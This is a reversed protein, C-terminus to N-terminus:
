FDDMPDYLNDINSTINNPKLIYKELCKESDFHYNEYQYDGKSKDYKVGCYECTAYMKNEFKSLCESSCFSLSKNIIINNYQKDVKNTIPKCCNWCIKIPFKKDELNCGISMESTKPKEKQNNHAQKEKIEKIKNLIKKQQNKNFAKNEEFYDSQIILIDNLNEFGDIILTDIFRVLNISRLFDYIEKFKLNYFKTEENSLNKIFEQDKAKDGDCDIEYKEKETFFNTKTNNKKGFDIEEKTTDNSNTIFNSSTSLKTKKGIEKKPVIQIKELYRKNSM